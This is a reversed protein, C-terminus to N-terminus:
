ERVVRNRGEAKAIYLSRDARSVLDKVENDGDELEALGISVTVRVGQGACEVELNEIRKRIREAALLAFKGDTEVLVAVFEEGGMRGVIDSERVCGSVARVVSRLVEDGATHGYTDNVRKFHDIDIMLLSLSHGYRRSRRMEDSARELAHRRNYMGTLPDTIALNKLEEELKKRDTIDIFSVFVKAWTDEYGPALSVRAETWIQEGDLNKQVSDEEFEFIGKSLAIAGKRFLEMSRFTFIRDINQLLMERSEARFLDLTAQNVNVVRIREATEIASQPNENFYKELDDIGRGRIEELYERVRSFDDEWLSIPSDEFLSRYRAESERLFEDHHKRDTIEITQGILHVPRNMIDREISVSLIIWIEQGDKRIYRKELNYSPMVGTILLDKLRVDMDIDDPHTIDRFNMELLESSTYGVLTCFSKNVMLFNGELSGIVMGHSASDFLGTFREVSQIYAESTKKQETINHLNIVLGGYRGEPDSMRNVTVQYFLERGESELKQIFSYELRSDANASGIKEELWPPTEIMGQNEGPHGHGSDGKLGPLERASRNCYELGGDRDILFVPDALMELIALYRTGVPGPAGGNEEAASPLNMDKDNETKSM